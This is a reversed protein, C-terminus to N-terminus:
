PTWSVSWVIMATGVCYLARYLWRNVRETLTVGAYTQIEWGRVFLTGWLLLAAGWIQMALILGRPGVGIFRSSVRGALFGVATSTVVLALSIWFARCVIYAHHPGGSKGSFNQRAANDKAEEEALKAPALVGLLCLYVAHRFTVLTPRTDAM